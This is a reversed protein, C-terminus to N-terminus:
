LGFCSKYKMMGNYKWLFAAKGIKLELGLDGNKNANTIAGCFGYKVDEIYKSAMIIEADPKEAVGKVVSSKKLIYSNEWQREGTNFNYLKLSLVGKEPLDNILEQTQLFQELSNQGVVRNEQVYQIVIDNNPARIANLTIPAAAPANTTSSVANSNGFIKDNGSFVVYGLSLALLAIIAVVALNRIKREKGKEKQKEM